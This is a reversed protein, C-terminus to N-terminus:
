MGRHKRHKRHHYAISHSTSGSAAVPATPTAARDPQQVGATSGPMSRGLSPGNGDENQQAVAFSSPLGLVAALMLLTVKM